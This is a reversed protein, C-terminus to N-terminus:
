PLTPANQLSIVQTVSYNLPIANTPTSRIPDLYTTSIRVTHVRGWLSATTVANASLYADVNGQGGTDTGYTIIMSSINDVVPLNYANSVLDLCTLTNNNISWQDLIRVNGGSVNTGGICNTVGDGNGTLYQVAIIDSSNDVNDANGRGIVAQGAALTLPAGGGLTASNAPLATSVTNILPNTYYGAQSISSTLLTSALRESEQLRALRDQAVFTNRMSLVMYLASTTMFLSIVIAVMLEILSLGRQRAVSAVSANARHRTALCPPLTKPSTM